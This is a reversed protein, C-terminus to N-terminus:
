PILIEVVTAGPQSQFSLSAGVAVARDRMSMLGRRHPVSVDFGCGNDAVRLRVGQPTRMAEIRVLTAHSHQLINSLAEYVMFQLQRMAKDDLRGIPELLEVSWQLEMDSAKLRPELRYRLNALLATVDGAPLHMADISLKLQDLSEHLTHLVEGHSARGSELQRIATSIHSGVGDHMDRLIRTREEARVQESALQKVRQYSLELEQKKEEVRQALNAMLDHAQTSAARFRLMVISLLSLGFLVASYRLLTNADYDQSFRYVYVDRLGVLTNVVMAFAVWQLPRSAGRWAKRIFFVSFVLTTAGALAYFATLELAHGYVLAGVSLYVCVLLELALWRRLWAAVRLHSWGALETCFLTTGLIWVAAAVTTIVGWLPWTWPPNEMIANGFTVAYGLEAVGAYLYLPDRRLRGPTAVSVQTAWLGLAVAGVLLSLIVVVLTGTSRWRYNHLYLPYVEEELGLVLPALGARRGVDARIRVRFVNRGQRLVGPSIVIYRPAKAFDAGNGQRLSGNHQLLSGNLWVEYANGLRGVYLGYPVAPASALDFGLVFEAEGAQGRHRRDWHYPLETTSEFTSGGVSARVSADRLELTSAQSPPVLCLLALLLVWPGRSGLIHLVNMLVHIKPRSRVRGVYADM